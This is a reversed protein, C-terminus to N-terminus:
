GRCATGTACFNPNSGTFNPHDIPNPRLMIARLLPALQQWATTTNTLTGTQKMWYNILEPRHLSPIPTLMQVLQNANTNLVVAGSSTTLTVNTSVTVSAGSITTTTLWPEQAALMMHQFDPATYDSNAGGAPNRNLPDGPLLALPYNNLTSTMTLTGAGPNYGFGTGSFPSGNILLTDHANPMAANDFTTMQPAVTAPNCGVLLSSQGACSGTLATVM